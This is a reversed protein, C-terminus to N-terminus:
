WHAIGGCDYAALKSFIKHCNVFTRHVLIETCKLAHASLTYWARKKQLAPFSAIRGRSSVGSILFAHISQKWYDLLSESYVHVHVSNPLITCIQDWEM